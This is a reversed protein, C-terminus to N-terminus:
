LLPISQFFDIVESSLEVGQINFMQSYKNIFFNALDEIYKKKNDLPPIDILFVNLRYYLIM